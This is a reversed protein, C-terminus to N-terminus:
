AELPGPQSTELRLQVATSELLDAVHDFVALAAVRSEPLNIILSHGRTGATARSLMEASDLVTARQRIAEALGPVLREAVMETIDPMVDSRALGTGGVTFVLDAEEVDCMENLSVAICEGDKPCVHYAVVVWGRAECAKILAMGSEDERIKAGDVDSTLADSCSLVAVRTDSM